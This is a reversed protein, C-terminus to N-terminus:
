LQRPGHNRHQDDHHQEQGCRSNDVFDLVRPLWGARDLHRHDAVLEPPLVPIRLVAKHGGVLQVHRHAIRLLGSWSKQRQEGGVRVVAEPHRAQRALSVQDGIPNIMHPNVRVLRPDIEALTCLVGARLVGLHQKPNVDLRASVKVAPHLRLALRNGSEATYDTTIGSAGFTKM